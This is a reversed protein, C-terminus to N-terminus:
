AWSSIPNSTLQEPAVTVRALLRSIGATASRHIFRASAILTYGKTSACDGRGRGSCHCEWTHFSGTPTQPSIVAQFKGKSSNEQFTPGARAAPLVMTILGASVVGVEEMRSTSIRCSTNGGPTSLMTLPSPGTTPSAILRCGSISLTDKVPEVRIPRTTCVLQAVVM